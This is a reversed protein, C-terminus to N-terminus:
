EKLAGLSIGAVIYKQFFPFLILIPIVGLVAIAMRVSVSPINAVSQGMQTMVKSNKVLFQVNDLINELLYQLTWLKTNNVFYLANVWDNWYTLITFMTITAIIPKGMPLTVHWLIGIPGAGDIEAAEMISTPISNEFYNKMLIIFFPNLLLNPLVLAWITNKIKMYKAWLIYSPVIGGHFTENLVVM